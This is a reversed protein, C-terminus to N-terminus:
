DPLRYVGNRRLALGDDIVTQAVREARDPDGSWGMVEAADEVAVPGDRLARVLCGRGQRDSGEFRSQRGSVGASGIAPDPECRGHGLWGCSGALPCRCCSPRRARCVTAGVDLLAQNWIWPDKGVVLEDATRQVESRTMARNHQRALIRAVNTDVVAEARDFAFVAVARATYPGIGPLSVLDDVSSPLDGDFREVVNVACGHLNVARRNYGLGSWEDIVAGVSAMATDGVTPFRALFRTWRDRVRDVQTQQLMVEAVLIAWPDRTSRWPLDRGEARFWDVLSTEALRQV